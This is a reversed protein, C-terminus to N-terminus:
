LLLHNSPMWLAATCLGTGFFTGVVFQTLPVGVIPCSVNVFWNPVVPTIRLFLIYYLLKDSNHLIQPVGLALCLGADLHVSCHFNCHTHTHSLAHSALFWRVKERFTDLMSPLLRTMIPKGLLSSILYCLTAGITACAAVLIQAYL